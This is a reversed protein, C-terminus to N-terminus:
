KINLKLMRKRLADDGGELVRIIDKRREPNEIAGIEYSFDYKGSSVRKIDSTIVNETDSCVVLSANHTVVIIQREQKETKVFNVLDTAVGGVDLDDEPQDILIPYKEDDFRFILELLAIAKQGGTMDKFCVDERTKVSNLYDIEFRNRLLQTLVGSVDGAEVKIKIKNNILGTIVKEITDKAPKIPAEGFLKKVDSEAKLTSDSDRTNIYREVFAKLQEANYRAIIEIKLFSFKEDFKITKYIAEQQLEFDSYASVLRNITDKRDDEAKKLKGTLEKIKEQTEQLTALEKTLDDLAKSKKIKEELKKVVGEKEKVTKELEKVQTEIKEVEKTILTKLSEKSKKNLENRILEQRESSLLSFEQDSIFISAGTKKLTNLIEKDQNLIDIARKGDAVIKQAQSYTKIESETISSGSTSKYQKIQENKKEVENDIEVKSGQKKLLTQTERATKDASLLRQILEELKVKNKSVFNEFSSIANAFRINKKLLTTLFEDRENVKDGDDYALASLYNQPVYFISKPSETTGSNKQGDAWLAEIDTLSYPSKKDKTEFQTPDIRRALNKLLTSKGSGRVGIISNLDRNLYVSKKVNSANKYTVSDIVVRDTKSDSPNRDQIKVREVPEYLTQKLGDFTTDAKIWTFGTGINEKKHADSCFFVPKQEAGAYRDKKLFFEVDEKKGFLADTKKDIVVALNNGRGDDKSSPRYSGDGRPCAVIIYDELHTIEKDQELASKLTDFAISTTKIEETTLDKCYKDDVMKLRGLFGEIKTKPLKDSFVIHTHMEENDKNKPQTRFELNPFVVIGKEELKKRIEDLENDAFHFYNTLGVVAIGKAEIENVFDDISCANYENALFTKPSHLHLDWKRWESGRNIQKAKTTTM